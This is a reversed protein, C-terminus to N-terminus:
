NTHLSRSRISSQADLVVVAGSLLRHLLPYHVLLLHSLLVNIVFGHYLGIPGLSCLYFIFFYTPFAFRGRNSMPLPHPCFLYITLPAPRSISPRAPSGPTTGLAPVIVPFMSLNAGLKCHPSAGYCPLLTFSTNVLISMGVVPAIRPWPGSYLKDVCRRSQASPFFLRSFCLPGTPITRVTSIWCHM